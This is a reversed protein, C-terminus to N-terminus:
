VHARGIKNSQRLTPYTDLIYGQFLIIDHQEILQDINEPTHQTLHIHPLPSKLTPSTANVAALTVEFRAALATAFEWYRIAPGAMRETIVDPCLILISHTM